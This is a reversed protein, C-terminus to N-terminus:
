ALLPGSERVKKALLGLGSGLAAVALSAMVVRGVM